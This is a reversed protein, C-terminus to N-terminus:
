LSLLTVYSHPQHFLREYEVWDKAIPAYIMWDKVGLGKVVDMANPEFDKILKFLLENISKGQTTTIIENM